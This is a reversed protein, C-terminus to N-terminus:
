HPVGGPTYSLIVSCLQTKTAVIWGDLGYDTVIGVSSDRGRSIVYLYGFISLDSKSVNVSIIAFYTSFLIVTVCKYMELYM